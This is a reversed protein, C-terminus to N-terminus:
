KGCPLPKMDLSAGSPRPVQLVESLTVPIQQVMVPDQITQKEFKGPQYIYLATHADYDYVSTHDVGYMPEPDNALNSTVYTFPFSQFIVEGSRREQLPHTNPNNRFLHLKFFRGQDEKEFPWSALEKATWADKIGPLCQLLYKVRQLMTEQAEANLSGFLTQNMYVFPPIFTRIYSGGLDKNFTDVLCDNPVRDTILRQALDFGRAQLLEPIAPYYGEDSCFLFLCDSPDVKQYAHRIVNGIGQDIQYTIDITEEVQTGLIGGVTDYAVHNVFLILRENTGSGLHTDIIHNAFDYVSQIGLPSVIYAQAGFIPVNSHLTSGLLTKRLPLIGAFVDSYQYNKADAFQYAASDLPYFPQWVFTEPVPHAQNFQKVWEPIGKPYYYRSTTFLGTPGDLWIAKGLRGAMLTAPEQHSSIAFVKSSQEATSFMIIQDSLTDVKYNRPSVGNTYYYGITENIENEYYVGGTSPNFVGATAVDNDQVADFLRAEADLWQNNVIGHYCPFTGTMLAAHGQGTSCNAHPHFVNLYSTGHSQLYRIGGKLFPFVKDISAKGLADGVFVITLKPTKRMSPTHSHVTAIEQKLHSFEEQVFSTLSMSRTKTFIRYGEWIFFIVGIAIIVKVIKGVDYRGSKYQSVM